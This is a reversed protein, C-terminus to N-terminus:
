RTTTNRNDYTSTTTDRRRLGALGALGLLGIWGWDMGDDDTTARTTTTSAGTGGGSAGTGSTGGGAAGQGWSPASMAALGLAVTCAGLVKSIKKTM